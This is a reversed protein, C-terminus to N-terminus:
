HRLGARIVCLCVGAGRIVTLINVWILALSRMFCTSYFHSPLTSLAEVHELEWTECRRTRKEENWMSGGGGRWYIYNYCVKIRMWARSTCSHAQRHPCLPSCTFGMPIHFSCSIYYVHLCMQCKNVKSLSSLEVESQLCPTYYYCYHLVFHNYFTPLFIYHLNFLADDPPLHKGNPWFHLNITLLFTMLKTCWGFTWGSHEHFLFLNLLM